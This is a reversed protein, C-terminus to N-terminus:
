EAFYKYIRVVFSSGFTEVISVKNYDLVFLILQIAILVVLANISPNFILYGISFGRLLVDLSKFTSNTFNKISHKLIDIVISSKQANEYVKSLWLFVRDLIKIIRQVTKYFISNEYYSGFNGNGLVINIVYSNKYTIYIFDVLKKFYSSKYSNIFCDVIQYVISNSLITKFWNM